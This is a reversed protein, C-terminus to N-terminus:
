ADNRLLAALTELAGNVIKYGGEAGINKAIEVAENIIVLSPTLPFALLEAAAARIIAGEVPSINHGSRGLAATMQEEIETRRADWTQTLTRTLEDNLVAMKELDSQRMASWAAVASAEANHMSAAYILHVAAQRAQRRAVTKGDSMRVGGLRRGEGVGDIQAADDRVADISEYYAIIGQLLALPLTCPNNWERIKPFPCLHLLPLIYVPLYNGGCFGGGNM